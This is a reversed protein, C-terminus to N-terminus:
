EYGDYAGDPSDSDTQDYGPLDFGSDDASAADPLALRLDRIDRSDSDYSGRSRSDLPFPSRAKYRAAHIPSPRPTDHGYNM